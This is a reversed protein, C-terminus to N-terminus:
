RVTNRSDLGDSHDIEYRTRSKMQRLPRWDLIEMTKMTVVMTKVSANGVNALAIVPYVLITSAYM